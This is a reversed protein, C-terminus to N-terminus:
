ACGSPGEGYNLNREGRESQIEQKGEKTSVRMKTFADELLKWFLHTPLIHKSVKCM